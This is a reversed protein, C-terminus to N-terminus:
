AENRCRSSRKANEQADQPHLERWESLSEKRKDNTNKSTRSKVLKEQWAKYEEPHTKVWVEFSAKRKAQVEPTKIRERNAKRADAYKEPNAEKWKLLRTRTMDKYKEASMVAKIRASRARLAPTDGSRFERQAAEIMAQFQEPHNKMHRRKKESTAAGSPHETTGGGGAVLNLCKDDALLEKDVLQSELTETEQATNCMAIFFREFNGKHKKLKSSFKLGSGQYRRIESWKPRNAKGIYYEGTAWNIQIYVVRYYGDNKNRTRVLESQSIVDFWRNKIRIRQKNIGMQAMLKKSDATREVSLSIPNFEQWLSINKNLDIIM